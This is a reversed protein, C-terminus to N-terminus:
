KLYEDLNKKQFIAKIRKIEEYLTGRPTKLIDSAAKISLGKEGLLDCLRKQAPSLKQYTRTLDIKLEVHIRLEPDTAIVDMLTSADEEDSLPQDLSITNQAVRRQLRERGKVIDKLKNAIVRAMFTKESAEAEPDYKDKVFLWHTLCEQLLDEFEDPRLWTRKKMLQAIVNKAVAIEWNEFLGKYKPDAM